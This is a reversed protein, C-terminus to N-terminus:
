MRKGYICIFKYQSVVEIEIIDIHGMYRMAAMNPTIFNRVHGAHPYPEMPVSIFVTKGSPIKEIVSLDKEIHELVQTFIITQYDFKSLLNTTEIDLCMFITSHCRKKAERIAVNSIDLGISKRDPIMSLFHGLGCGADLVVGDPLRKIIWDYIPTWHTVESNYPSDSKLIELWDNNYETIKSM